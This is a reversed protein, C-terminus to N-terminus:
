ICENLEPLSSFQEYHAQLLKMEEFAPISGAIRNHTVYWRFTLGNHYNEDMQKIFFQSRSMKGQKATLRGMIGQAKWTGDQKTTGAKGIYIPCKLDLDDSDFIIYVGRENPVKMKGVVANISERPHLQFEGCPIARRRVSEIVDNLSMSVIVRGDQV